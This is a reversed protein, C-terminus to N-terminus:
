QISVVTEPGAAKEMAAEEPIAKLRFITCNGFITDLRYQSALLDLMGPVEKLRKWVPPFRETRTHAPDPIEEIAIVAPKVSRLREVYESQWDRQYDTVTGQKDHVIIPFLSTFRTAERREIRWRPGPFMSSYEVYDSPRTTNMIYNTITEQMDPGYLSDPFAVRYTSELSYGSVVFERLLRWPYLGIVAIALLAVVLIRGFRIHALYESIVAVIAPIAFAFFPIYHYAFFKRQVVIGILLAGVTYTLFKEERPRKMHGFTRGHRWDWILVAIFAIVIAAVLWIRGSIKEASIGSYIDINFRVFVLYLEHLFTGKFYTAGSQVLYPALFVLAVIGVGACAIAFLRVTRKEL